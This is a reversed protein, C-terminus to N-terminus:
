REFEGRAHADIHSDLRHHAQKATDAASMTARTNAEIRETQTGLWRGVSLVIAPVALGATVLGGVLASLATQFGISWSEAVQAPTEPHENAGSVFALACISVLLLMLMPRSVLRVECGNSTVAHGM